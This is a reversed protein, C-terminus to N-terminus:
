VTLKGWDYEYVHASFSTCGMMGVAIGVEKAIRKQLMAFGRLNAYLASGYDHSRFVLFMNLRSKREKSDVTVCCPPDQEFLRSPSGIRMTAKRTSHDEKLMEVVKSIQDIPEQLESGYTYTFGDPIVKGLIEKEAYTKIAAESTWETRLPITKDLPNSILLNLFLIEKTKIPQGGAIVTVEQGVRGILDLAQIHADAPSYAKIIYGIGKTDYLDFM